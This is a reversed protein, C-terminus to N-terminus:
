AVRLPRPHSATGSVLASAFLERLVAANDAPPNPRAERSEIPEAPSLFALSRARKGSSGSKILRDGTRRTDGASSSVQSVGSGADDNRSFLTAWFSRRGSPGGEEAVRLAAGSITGRRALIEAKAEEYRALPKGDPPLHVTKGDPFLSALQSRTMRPWARVGAVDLHVFGSSTSRCMPGSRGTSRGSSM